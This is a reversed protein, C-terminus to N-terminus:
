LQQVMSHVQWYRIVMMTLTSHYLKGKM